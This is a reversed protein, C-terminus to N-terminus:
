LRRIMSKEFVTFSKQASNREQLPPSFLHTTSSKNLFSALTHDTFEGGQDTFLCIPMRGFKEMWKRLAKIVDQPLPADKDCLQVTSYGSFLDVLHIIARKKTGHKIFFTDAAVIHGPERAWIGGTKPRQGPQAFQRCTKCRNVAATCM